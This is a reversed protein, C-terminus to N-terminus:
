GSEQAASRPALTATPWPSVVARIRPALAELMAERDPARWLRHLAARKELGESIEAMGEALMLVDFTAM